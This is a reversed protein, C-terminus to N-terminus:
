DDQLLKELDEDSIRSHKLEAELEEIRVRCDLYAACWPREDDPHTPRAVEGIWKQREELEKVRDLSLNWNNIAADYHSKYHEVEEELEKIRASLQEVLSSCNRFDDLEVKIKEDM